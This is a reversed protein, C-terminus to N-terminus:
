GLSKLGEMYVALSTNRGSNTAQQSGFSVGYLLYPYLSKVKVGITIVSM